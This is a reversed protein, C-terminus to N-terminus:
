ESGLFELLRELFVEPAEEPLWHGSGEIVSGQVDAAYSGVQQSVFDGLSSEAGLALVPMSLANQDLTANREIDTHFARFYNFAASLKGPQAYTRTYEAFDEDTFADQNVAINRIFFEFFEREKGEILTEPLNALNFFGFQWAVPGQPGLSPFTYISEDPIPAELLVLKDVADPYETALAFSVMLGIDHGVLYFSELGLSQALAYLDDAASVKDYGGEPVSSDGLGRLDPAIVQYGAEALGPMIKRWEYWTSAFGHVLMIPPGEGGIVYHLNVDEVQAFESSFGEPLLSPDPQALAVSVGLALVLFFTRLTANM